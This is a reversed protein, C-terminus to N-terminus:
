KRTILFAIGGIITPVIACVTWILASNILDTKVSKVILGDVREELDAVKNVLGEKNNFEDGIMASTLRHLMQKIEQLESSQDGAM